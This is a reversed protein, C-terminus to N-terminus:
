LLSKLQRYLIKGNFTRPIKDVTLIQKPVQFAELKNHLFSVLEDECYSKDVSAFLVPIEGMLKDKKGILACDTIGPCKLCISEVEPPSIKNGGCVIINDKRGLMFVLGNEDTYGIDNSYVYGNILTQKTLLDDGWYGEMVIDGGTILRGPHSATANFINGSEDVFAFRTNTAEGGICYPKDDKTNFDLVSACGAESSGYINYLRSAPLLRKLRDKDEQYLHASGLQIFDIKDKYEGLKDGSLKFIISLASPALAAANANLKEFCDFFKKIFVVGDLLIVSGGALMTSYYRRIAFSHNLPMPIIQCTDATTKTGYLVNEATALDSRHSLVVGKSKGTTGTTFLITSIEEKLPFRSVSFRNTCEDLQEFSLSKYGDLKIDSIVAAAQTQRAIEKLREEKVNKELPVAIAGIIHVAHLCALFNANQASKIVVRDSKHVGLNNIAAAYKLILNYYELYTLSGDKDTLCVKDPENAANLSIHEVISNSM